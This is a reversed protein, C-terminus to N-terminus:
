NRGWLIPAKLVPKPSLKMPEFPYEKEYELVKNIISIVQESNGRIYKNIKGDLERQLIEYLELRYIKPMDRIDDMMENNYSDSCKYMKNAQEKEIYGAKGQMSCSSLVRYRYKALYYWFVAENEQGEKFLHNSYCFFIAPDANRVNNSKILFENARAYEIVAKDKESQSENKRSTFLSFM